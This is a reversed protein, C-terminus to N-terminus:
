ILRSVRGQKIDEESKKLMKKEKETLPKGSLTKIGQLSQYREWSTVITQPINNITILLGSYEGNKLKKCLKYFNRKFDSISVKKLMRAM